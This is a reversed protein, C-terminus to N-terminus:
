LIVQGDANIHVKSWLQIVVYSGFGEERGDIMIWILAEWYRDDWDWEM